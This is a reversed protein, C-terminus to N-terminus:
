LIGRFIKRSDGSLAMFAPTWAARRKINEELGRKGGARADQGGEEGERLDEEEEDKGESGVKGGGETERRWRNDKSRIGRRLKRRRGEKWKERGEGKGERSDRRGGEEKVRGEEMKKKM